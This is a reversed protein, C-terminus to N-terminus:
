NTCHQLVSLIIKDSKALEIWQHHAPPIISESIITNLLFILYSKTTLISNDQSSQINQNIVLEEISQEIKPKYIKIFHQYPHNIGKCFYFLVIQPEETKLKKHSNIVDALINSDQLYVIAGSRIIDEFITSSNVFDSKIIRKM